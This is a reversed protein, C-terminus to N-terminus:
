KEKIWFAVTLSIMGYVIEFGPTRKSEKAPIGTDTTLTAGSSGNGEGVIGNEGPSTANLVFIAAEKSATRGENNVTLNVTYTGASSYTHVPNQDTSNFGDGFDWNWLTANQSRDNFQVSLPAYGSTINSSFDAVFFASHEPNAKLIVLGNVGDIAYIYNGSVEIDSAYVAYIGKLIPSSPNSIDVIILGNDVAVYAYNGSISVRDAYGATDYRGIMVPSSPNSIDIVVLGNKSDAVYAYNGSVAVDCAHGATDYSGTLIPSSPNSIDVILLGNDWDAVYAYNGSISISKSMGITNYIEKLGPYSPNSIDVIVFDNKDAICVYNGSASIDRAYGPTDCSGKLTPSSPNSIDIIALGKDNDAVYAYKGLVSVDCAIGATNYSGKLLLLLIASM